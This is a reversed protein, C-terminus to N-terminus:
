EPGVQPGPGSCNYVTNGFEDKVVWCPVYGNYVSFSVDNIWQANSNMVFTGSDAVGEVWSPGSFLTLATGKLVSGGKPNDGGGGGLYLSSPYGTFMAKIYSINECAYFMSVYCYDVLTTALLEPAEFLSYCNSFMYAYCGEALTTAPLAPADMLSYCNRFMASYCGYTLATAPLEPASTLSRCNYFMNSYCSNSLETAPLVLNKANILKPYNSGSKTNSNTLSKTNVANLAIGGGGDDGTYAFLGAFVGTYGDLSDEGAFNDGFLLSMINGEVDFNKDNSTFTGIGEYESMPQLNGKWLVKTGGNFSATPTNREITSWTEGGDISYSLTESGAKTNGGKTDSKTTNVNAQNYEDQYSSLMFQTGNERVVFTFYDESYDHIIGKFHCENQEVCYSVNPLIYNQTDATYATYGNHNAFKKLYKTM